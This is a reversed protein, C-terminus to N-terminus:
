QVLLLSKMLTILHTLGQGKALMSIDKKAGMNKNDKYRTSLPVPNRM